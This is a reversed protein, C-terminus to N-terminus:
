INQICRVVSNHAPRTDLPFEVHPIDHERRDQDSEDDEKM